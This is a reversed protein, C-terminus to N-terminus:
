NLATYQVGTLKESVEWLHQAVAPNYVAPNPERRKPYGRYGLLGPGYYAGGLVGLATGAYLQPLAGMAASQALYTNLLDTLKGQTSTREISAGRLQLATNSYGPHAAVSITAKGAATLRRQLELTFLINARKSQFYAKWPDYSQEWQLDAFNISGPHHAVSTTTIIRSGETQVITALLLGTLAFHGLHNTGFQLEFGDATEQRPPAMVGANNFLMHLQQRQNITAAFQRVSDLSALDLPLLELSAGPVHRAIAERAAAGKAENRCAMIVHANHQALALTTEYGLGSNAGTVLAVKGSLDPMDATTWHGM